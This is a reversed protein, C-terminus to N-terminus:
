WNRLYGRLLGWVFPLRSMALCASLRFWIPVTGLHLHSQLGLPATALQCTRTFRAPICWLISGALWFLSCANHWPRGSLAQEFYRYPRVLFGTYHNIRYEQQLANDYSVWLFFLITVLCLPYISERLTLEAARTRQDDRSRLTPRRLFGM